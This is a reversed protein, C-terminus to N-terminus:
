AHSDPPSQTLQRRELCYEVLKRDSPALPVLALEELRGWQLAIHEHCTPEGAIGIPAFTILFPSGPDHIALQYPGVEIVDVGQEERRKRRATDDLTEGTECKGRPFEWLGGHRKEFPRRCVLMEDGRCIIAAIVRITLDSITEGKLSPM